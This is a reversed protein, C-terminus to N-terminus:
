VVVETPAVDPAVPAEPSAEVASVPDAEAVVEPAAAEVPAESVVPLVEEVVTEVAGVIQAALIAATGSDMNAFKVLGDSILKEVLPHAITLAAHEVIGALTKFLSM